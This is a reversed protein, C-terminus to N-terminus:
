APRRIWGPSLGRALAETLLLALRHDPDGDLARGLLVGARAGDAQWWAILALLTLAAAQDATRTHAVVAELVEVGARALEEDSASSAIM